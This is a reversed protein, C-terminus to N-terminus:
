KNTSVTFTPTDLVCRNRHLPYAWFSARNHRLVNRDPQPPIGEADATDAQSHICRGPSVVGVHNHLLAAVIRNPVRVYKLIWM